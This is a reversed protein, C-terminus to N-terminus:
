IVLHIVGATATAPAPRHPASGSLFIFISNTQTGFYLKSLFSSEERRHRSPFSLKNQCKYNDSPDGSLDPDAEPMIGKTHNAGTIIIIFLTNRTGEHGNETTGIFRSSPHVKTAFFTNESSVYYLM